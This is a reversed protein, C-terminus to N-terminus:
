LTSLLVAKPSPTIIRLPNILFLTSIKKQVHSKCHGCQRSANQLLFSISTNRFVNSIFFPGHDIRVFFTKSNERYIGRQFLTSQVRSVSYTVEQLPWPWRDSRLGFTEHSSRAPSPTFLLAHNGQWKVQSLVTQLIPIKPSFIDIYNWINSVPFM